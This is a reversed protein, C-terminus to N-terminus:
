EIKQTSSDGQKKTGDVKSPRMLSPYVASFISFSIAAATCFAMCSIVCFRDRDNQRMTRRVALPRHEDRRHGGTTAVKSSPLGAMVRLPWPWPAQSRKAVRGGHNELRVEVVGVPPGAPQAAKQGLEAPIHHEGAAEVRVIVEAFLAGGM